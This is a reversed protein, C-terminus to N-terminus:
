RAALDSDSASPATIFSLLLSQSVPKVLHADFGAEKSRRRDEAQGYGTVAILLATKGAPSARLARAVEYGDLGPLGLDILVVEPQHDLALELGRPGDPAELVRHGLSELLLRLAERTDDKDEVILVSRSRDTSPAAPAAAPVGAPELRLRVTFQAGRGRGESAAAITGGHLEVLHRSLALGIGLGGVARDAPQQAQAFLEFVRPLMQPDMGIGTDSVRVVGEQGERLIDVDVSGGSPTFKVANDLLNTIIQALRTPDASVIVSEARFTLRHRRVRGSERLSRVCGGAVDSLDVPQRQLSIKGATARAVDLLDDVLRTLHHTQRDIIQRLRVATDTGARCRDLAAVANAIAGLPNRLEHSLMAFFQEKARNAEATERYLQANELFIGAFDSIGQLLGIEWETISRRATWWVVFFGGVPRDKTCIPVFVCSQHPFQRLISVDVRPDSPMDDTWVARRHAWAEEIALHNNIPIPIQRFADLLDPPVHYGATPWLHEGAADSLYAGVMDAGIARAIERAVRRMTEAPDLTSSLARSVALLTETERLRLQERQRLETWEREARKRDAIDRLIALHRGAVFRATASYEIHTVAGDPRILRVEGVQEGCHLFGQWASELNVGPQLLDDFRRGVLDQVSRGLLRCAAPNADVFTREDDVVIVGDRAAALLAEVQQESSM